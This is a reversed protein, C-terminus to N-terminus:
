CLIYCSFILLLYYKIKITVTLLALTSSEQVLNDTVTQKKKWLKTRDPCFEVRFKIKLCSFYSPM